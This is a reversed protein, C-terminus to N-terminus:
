MGTSTCSALSAAASASADQSVSTRSACARSSPARVAAAADANRGCAIVPCHIREEALQSVLWGVDHALECLALDAGDVRLRVMAAAVGEAHMLHAGRVQAMRAAQGLEGGLSGIVLVRTM